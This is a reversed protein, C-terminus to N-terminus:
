VLSFKMVYVDMGDRYHNPILYAKEFGNKEYLRIAPENTAKVELKITTLKNQQAFELTKQMLMQGINRRRAEPHVAISHIRLHNALINVILSVYAITEENQKAIYFAGRTKTILSVFDRKSFRGSDFCLREIELVSKIDSLQAERILIVQNEM